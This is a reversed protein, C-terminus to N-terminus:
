SAPWWRRKLHPRMEKYPILIEEGCAQIVHPLEPAVVLGQGTFFIKLTTEPRYEVDSCGEQIKHHRLFLQFLLRHTPGDPVTGDSLLASEEQAKFVDKLDLTKGTHLDYVLPELATNPHNGGCYYDSRRVISLVDATFLLVSVQEDWSRDGSDIEELCEAVTGRRKELERGLEENVKMMVVSDPFRTIHPLSVGLHKDKWMSYGIQSSVRIEPGHALPSKLPDSVQTVGHLMNVTSSGTSQAWIASLALVAVLYLRCSPM